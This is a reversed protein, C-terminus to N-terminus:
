VGIAENLRGLEDHFDLPGAQWLLADGTERLITNFGATEPAAILVALGCLFLSAAAFLPVRKLASRLTDPDHRVCFSGRGLWLVIAATMTGEEAETTTDKWWAHLRWGG